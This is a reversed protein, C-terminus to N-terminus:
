KKTKIESDVENEDIIKVDGTESDVYVGHGEDMLRKINKDTKLRDIAAKLREVLTIPRITPKQENGTENNGEM